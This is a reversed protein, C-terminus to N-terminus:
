QNGQAPFHLGSAGIFRDAEWLLAVVARLAAPNDKWYGMERLEATILRLTNRANAIEGNDFETLQRDLAARMQKVAVALRGQILHKSAAHGTGSDAITSSVGAGRAAKENHM